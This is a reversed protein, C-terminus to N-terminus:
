CQSLALRVTQIFELGLVLVVKYQVRSPKTTYVCGDVFNFIGPDSHHVRPISDAALRLLKYRLHPSSLTSVFSFIAM